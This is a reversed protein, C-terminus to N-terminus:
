SKQEGSGEERTKAAQEIGKGGGGSGREGFLFATSGRGIWARPRGWPVCPRRRPGRPRWARVTLSFSPSSPLFFLPPLSREEREERPQQERKGWRGRRLPKQADMSWDAQVAHVAGIHKMAQDKCFGSRLRALGEVAVRSSPPSFFLFDVKRRPRLIEMQAFPLPFPGRAPM